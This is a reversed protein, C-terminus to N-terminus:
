GKQNHLGGHSSSSGVYETEDGASFNPFCIQQQHLSLFGNWASGWRFLATIWQWYPPSSFKSGNLIELLFCSLFIHKAEEQSLSFFPKCFTSSPLPVSLLFFFHELGWMLYFPHTLPMNVKVLAIVSVLNM